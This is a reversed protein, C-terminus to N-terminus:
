PTLDGTLLYATILDRWAAIEEPPIEAPLIARQPSHETGLEAFAGAPDSSGVRLVDPEMMELINDKAGRQTLSRRLDGSDQLIMWPGLMGKRRLTEESLPEWPDGGYAGASLFQQDFMALVRDGVPGTMAASPDRLRALVGTLM